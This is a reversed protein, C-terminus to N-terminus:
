RKPKYVGGEYLYLKEGGDRSFHNVFAKEAVLWEVMSATWRGNKKIARQIEELEELRIRLREGDGDDDGEVHDGDPPNGFRMKIAEDGIREQKDPGPLLHPAYAALFENLGKGQCHDHRCSPAIGGDAFLTFSGARDDVHDNPDFPCGRIEIIVAGNGVSKEKTIRDAIFPQLDSWKISRGRAGRDL